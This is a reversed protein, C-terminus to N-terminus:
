KNNSRRKARDHTPMTNPSTTLLGSDAIFCQESTKGSAMTASVITEVERMGPHSAPSASHFGNDAVTIATRSRNAFGVPGAVEHTAACESKTATAQGAAIVATHM